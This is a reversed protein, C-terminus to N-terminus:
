WGLPDKQDRISIGSHYRIVADEPKNNMRLMPQTGQNKKPDKNRKAIVRGIM